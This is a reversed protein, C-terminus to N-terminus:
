VIKSAADRLQWGFCTATLGTTLDEYRAYQYYDNFMRGVGNVGAYERDFTFQNWVNQVEVWHGEMNQFCPAGTVIKIQQGVSVCNRKPFVVSGVQIYKPPSKYVPRRVAM